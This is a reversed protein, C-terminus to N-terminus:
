QVEDGHNEHYQTLIDKMDSASKETILYTIPIGHKHALKGMTKVGQIPTGHGWDTDVFYAQSILCFHLTPVGKKIPSFDFDLFSM